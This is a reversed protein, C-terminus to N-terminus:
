IDISLHAHTHIILHTSPGDTVVQKDLQVAQVGLRVFRAFLSQDLHAV